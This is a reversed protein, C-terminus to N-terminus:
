QKVLLQVSFRNARDHWVAHKRFGAARGLAAIEDDSFKYSSETHIREGARSRGRAPRAIPDAREDRERAELFSDVSGRAEDYHAVHEFNRVDFDRTSSAISARSCTATSRRRSARRITTPSSSRRAIRRSIPASCCGTAPACRRASCRSCSSRRTRARLQRHELGHVDRADQAGLRLVHSELVDFYDGAYARM